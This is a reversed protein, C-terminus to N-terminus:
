GIQTPQKQSVAACTGASARAAGGPRCCITTWVTLWFVSSILSMGPGVPPMRSLDDVPASMDTDSVPMVILLPWPAVIRMVPGETVTLSPAKSTMQCHRAVENLLPGRDHAGVAPLRHRGHRARGDREVAHGCRREGVRPGDGAAGPNGGRHWRADGSLPHDPGRAHRGVPLRQDDETAHRHACRPPRRQQGDDGLYPDYRRSTPMFM